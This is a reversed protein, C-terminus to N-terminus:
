IKITQILVERHPQIQFRSPPCICWFSCWKLFGSFKANLGLMLPQIQASEVAPDLKWHISMLCQVSNQGCISSSAYHCQLLQVNSLCEWLLKSTHNLSPNQECINHHHHHHHHNVEPNVKYFDSKLKDFKHDQTCMKSTVLQSGNCWNFSVTHYM